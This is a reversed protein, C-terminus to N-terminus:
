SQLYNAFESIMGSENTKDCFYFHGPPNCEIFFMGNKAEMFDFAGLSLNFHKMYSLCEKKLQFTKHYDISIKGIHDRWDLKYDGKIKFAFVKKNFVIVRYESIFDIKEQFHHLTFEVHGKKIEALIEKNVFVPKSMYRKQNMYLLNSSHLPKFVSNSIWNKDLIVKARNSITQSPLKLGVKKAVIMQRIKDGADYTVSPHNVIKVGKAELCAVIGCILSHYEQSFFSVLSPDSNKHSAYISRYNAIWVTKVQESKLVIKTKIDVISFRNSTADLEFEYNVHIFNQVVVFYSNQPLFKLVADLEENDADSFILIKNKVM